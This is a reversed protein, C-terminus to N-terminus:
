RTSEVRWSVSARRCSVVAGVRAGGQERLFQQILRRRSDLDSEGSARTPQRAECSAVEREGAFFSLKTSTSGPNIVLVRYSRAAPLSITRPRGLEAKRQAYISALAISGLRTSLPDSRSVPAVPVQLGTTINTLSALGYKAMEMVAKYALNAQDIGTCALVDAVGAVAASEPFRETLKKATVSQPDLALDFSLPGYVEMGSWRRARLAAAMRSSALGKVEEETISLVAVKPRDRGLVLRAVEAANEIIDVMRPYSCSVTVAPDTLLMPRGGGLPAADFCTVVSITPRERIKLLERYLATTPTGGKVIIDAEGRQACAVAKAATEADDRAPVIDEATVAIHTRELAERIRGEDGVLIVRAVIGHDQAAEALLVDSLRDGGAVVVRKHPLSGAAFVLDSVARIESREQSAGSQSPVSSM